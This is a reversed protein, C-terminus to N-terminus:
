VDRLKIGISKRQPMFIAFVKGPNTRTQVSQFVRNCKNFLEPDNSANRGILIVRSSWSASTSMEFDGILVQRKARHAGLWTRVAGLWTRIGSYAYKINILSMGGATWSLAINLHIIQERVVSPQVASITDKSLGYRDLALEQWERSSISSTLSLAPTWLTKCM